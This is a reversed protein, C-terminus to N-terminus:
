LDCFWPTLLAVATRCGRWLRALRRRALRVAQNLRFRGEPRRWEPRPRHDSWPQPLAVIRGCSHRGSSSIRWVLTLPAHTVGTVSSVLRGPEYRTLFATRLLTM